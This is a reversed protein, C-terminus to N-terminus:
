VRLWQAVAESHTEETLCSADLGSDLCPFHFCTSSIAEFFLLSLDLYVQIYCRQCLSHGQAVWPSLRICWHGRKESGLMKNKVNKSTVLMHLSYFIFTNM